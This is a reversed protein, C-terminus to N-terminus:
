KDADLFKARICTEFKEGTRQLQTVPDTEMDCFLNLEYGTAHMVLVDNARAVGVSSMITTTTTTHHKDDTFSTTTSKFNSHPLQLWPLPAM